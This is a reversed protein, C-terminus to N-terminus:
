ANTPARLIYRISMYTDSHEVVRSRSSSNSVARGAEAMIGVHSPNWIIVDGAQRSSTAVKVFGPKPKKQLQNSLDNVGLSYVNIGAKKLGTSVAFACGLNGPTSPRGDYTKGCAAPYNLNENELSRMASLIRANAPGTTFNGGSNGSSNGSGSSGAGPNSRSIYNGSVYRENGIKLWSSDSPATGSVSVQAGRSLTDVKTGWPSKRVNLASATVYGTWSSSSSSSTASGQAARSIYASHVCRTGGSASIRYWKSDSPHNGLVTVRAGKKICDVITGYPATRVNLASATVYGIWSGSASAAPTAKAVAPAAAAPLEAGAATPDSPNLGAKAAGTDLGQLATQSWTVSNVSALSFVLIFIVLWKRNDTMNDERYRILTWFMESKLGENISISYFIFQKLFLM